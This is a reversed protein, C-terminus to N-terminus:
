NEGKEKQNNLEPDEFPKYIKYDDDYKEYLNVNKSDVIFSVKEGRVDVEIRVKYTDNAIEINKVEFVHDPTFAMGELRKVMDASLGNYNELTALITKHM